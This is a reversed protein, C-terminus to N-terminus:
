GWEGFEGGAETQGEGYKSSGWWGTEEKVVKKKRCVTNITTEVCEKLSWRNEM